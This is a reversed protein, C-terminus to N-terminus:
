EEIFPIGNEKLISFLKGTNKMEFVTDSGGIFNGGIWVSPVGKQNTMQFLHNQIEEGDGILDLDLFQFPSKLSSFLNKVKACFHCYSKTFIMIKHDNIYKTVKEKISPEFM